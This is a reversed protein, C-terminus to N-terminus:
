SQIQSALSYVNLFFSHFCLTHLIIVFPKIKNSFWTNLNNRYINREAQRAFNIIIAQAITSHRRYLLILCQRMDAISKMIPEEMGPLIM